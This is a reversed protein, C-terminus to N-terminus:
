FEFRAGIRLIRPTTVELISDFADSNIQRNRQLVTDANWVNFLDVTLGLSTKGAIKFAKGLRLDLNWFDPHREIDLGGTPLLQRAGDAGLGTRIQIAKPYGQRGLLSAGLELGGPLQYMGSASFQWKANFYVNGKAGYSRLAVIGGDVCPGCLGSNAGGPYGGQIITNRDTSSPNQFAAPGDLGETWDMYSFAVRMMWRNSLRKNASLEIGSYNLSYDPRNTLLRAGNGTKSPDPEYPQVTYGGSSVPALPLFDSSTLVRDNADIRTTWSLSDTGKRWTYAAGVSFNAGLQREIGVIVEHDRNAHYDPDIKNISTLATPNDPDIGSAYLPGLGTLIEDRQAFGDGNRDAWQYAIYNYNYTVPSNFQADIPGLQGAYRAYSARLVTKRSDDLALTVGVRPSIDSFSIGPVNGDFALEPVLEPFMPNAAATSERMEATQHDWRLGANVTLRDKTFTDGIYASTYNGVFNVNGERWVQAVSHTPDSLDDNNRIAVINNGGYAGYSTNPNHRYGFGFKLEHQGGMGTLFYSADANITHWPKLFRFIQASGKATDAVRDISLDQDAGNQPDFGYGWNYFSYKVNTVFNPSFSRNWELKWLGHIGCPLGCDEEAFFNGQNWLAENAGAYAPDRGYKEKAGWFWLGSIQDKPSAQWNLKVNYNKLISKDESATALRWLRIDNKNYAGWFWLKDKIIPGGLEFGYDHIQEISDANGNRLGSDGALESPTNTSQMDDHSFYSRLAGHFDNTGRKVVFNLGVGGTQVKLDGGGTSVNVEDFSDFDFYSSSAGYSTVDTITVGDYSWMTDTFQAGKGVFISQQGAENGAISVRDVIVGPVANLIAWPDRGQPVKSLDDKGFTTATGVKKTDVMPTEGSVTVSEGMGALKMSFDLNINVGTTVVVERNATSFGKLAVSLKYNGRDLNLFRFDGTTGSTTTRPAGGIQTAVLSVTAGPLVAGSEDTVTGYINGTATQSTAVPAAGVAGAFALWALRKMAM